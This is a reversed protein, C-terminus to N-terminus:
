GDNDHQDQGAPEAAVDWNGGPDSRDWWGWSRDPATCPPLPAIRHVSVILGRELPSSPTVHGGWGHLYSLDHLLTVLYLCVGDWVSLYLCLCHATHSRVSM